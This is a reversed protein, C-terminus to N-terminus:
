AQHHSLPPISHIGKRHLEALVTDISPPKLGLPLPLWPKSMAEKVVENIIEEDPCLDYFGEFLKAKDDLSDFGICSMTPGQTPMYFHSSYGYNPLVPYGWTDAHVESSTKWQWNGQPLHWSPMGSHGWLQVHPLHYSPHPWITYANSPPASNSSHYPTFAMIPKQMYGKQQFERTVQWRKDGDKPLIHRRHMRFKQLHSAINHRTLGEVKMLELIKSPIAQDVGLQEVARVFRKHLEPTWDVKMKRRRGEFSNLCSTDHLFSKRRKPDEGEFEDNEASPAFDDPNSNETSDLKEKVVPDMPNSTPTESHEAVAMDNCTIDVSKADSIGFNPMEIVEKAEAAYDSDSCEPQDELDENKELRRGKSLQPTSPAPYKDDSVCSPIVIKPLKSDPPLRITCSATEEIPELSKSIANEGASFAKHVVHQWINRLKDDSLPKQLFEAAGLAICNMMTNFCYANSIVITPLDKAVQLFTFNGHVSITTVEVIAVHYSEIKGLIAEMADKENHYSSVIYDMAELKTGIEAASETDEDLLLVRLGKPFDKWVGFDDASCVM